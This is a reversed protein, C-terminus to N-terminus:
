SHSLGFESQLWLRIEEQMLNLKAGPSDSTGQFFHEAGEIWILRKPEPATELVKEMVERPGYGDRDGSIFLKPQM